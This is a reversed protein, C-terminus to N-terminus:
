AVALRLARLRERDDLTDLVPESQTPTMETGEETRGSPETHDRRRSQREILLALVPLCGLSEGRQARCRLLPQPIERRVERHLHPRVTGDRADHHAREDLRGLPDDTLEREDVDGRLLRIHQGHDRIDDAPAHIPLMQVGPSEDRSDDDGEVVRDRDAVRREELERLRERGAVRCPLRRPM